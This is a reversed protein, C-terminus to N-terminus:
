WVMMDDGELFFHLDTKPLFDVFFDFITKSGWWWPVYHSSIRLFNTIKRPSDALLVWFNTAGGFVLSKQNRASKKLRFSWPFFNTPTSFDFTPITQFANQCLKAGIPAMRTPYVATWFKRTKFASRRTKFTSRGNLTKGFFAEMISATISNYDVSVFYVGGYRTYRKWTQGVITKM